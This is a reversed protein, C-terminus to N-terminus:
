IVGGRSQGAPDPNRPARESRRLLLCLTVTALANAGLAPRVYRRLLGEYDRFSKARQLRPKACLELWRDLFENLSDLNRSRDREGLMKNLHAQADRLGGHITQNLYKRQKTEPDHGNYVRVLCTRRRRGVIQGVKRAWLAVEVHLPPVCIACQADYDASNAPNPAILASRPETVRGADASESRNLHAAPAKPPRLV